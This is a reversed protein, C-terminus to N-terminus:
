EKKKLIATIQGDDEKRLGVLEIYGQYVERCGDITQATIEQTRTSRRLLLYAASFSMAQQIYLIVEDPRVQMLHAPATETGDMFILKEEM